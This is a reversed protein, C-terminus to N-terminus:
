NAASSRPHSVFSNIPTSRRKDANIQPRFHTKGRRDATKEPSSDHSIPLKVLARDLL